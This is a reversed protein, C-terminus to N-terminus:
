SRRRKGNNNVAPACPVDPRPPQAKARKLQAAMPVKASKSTAADIGWGPPTAHANIDATTHNLITPRPVTPPQLPAHEGDM